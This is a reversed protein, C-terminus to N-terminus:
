KSDEPKQPKLEGYSRGTEPKKIRSIKDILSGRKDRVTDVQDELARGIGNLRQAIPVLAPTKALITEIQRLRAIQTDIIDLNESLSRWAKEMLEPFKHL